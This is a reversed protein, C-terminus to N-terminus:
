TPEEQPHQIGAATRSAQALLDAYSVPPGPAPLKLLEAARRHAREPEPDSGTAATELELYHGLGTVDDLHVVTPGLRWVERRKDVVVLVGLVAALGRRCADADTVGTVTYTCVVHGEATTRQYAVLDATRPDGREQRLKLWGRDTRFYTDHQRLVGDAVAGADRLTRRARSLDPYRSKTELLRGSM